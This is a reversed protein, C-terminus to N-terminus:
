IQAYKLLFVHFYNEVGNQLQVPFRPQEHSKFVWHM